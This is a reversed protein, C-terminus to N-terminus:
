RPPNAEVANPKGRAGRLVCRGCAHPHARPTAPGHLGRDRAVPVHPQGSGDATPAEAELDEADPGGSGPAATVSPRSRRAPRAPARAGAGRREPRKALPQAAIDSDPPSEEARELRVRPRRFRAAARSPGRAASARSRPARGRRRPGRRQAREREAPRTNRASWRRRCEAAGSSSARAALVGGRTSSLPWPQFPLRSPTRRSRPSRGAQSTSPSLQDRPQRAVQAPAPPSSRSEALGLRDVAEAFAPERRALAHGRAELEAAAARTRRRGARRARRAEHHERRQAPHRHAPPAGASADGARGVPGARAVREGRLGAGRRRRSGAVGGSGSSRRGQRQPPATPAAAPTTPPKRNANRVPETSAASVTSASRAPTLTRRSSATAVAAM